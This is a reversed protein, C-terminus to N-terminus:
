RPTPSAPPQQPPQPQRPGFLRNLGQGIEGQLLGEGRQLEKNLMEQGRELQKTAAGQVAATAMQKGLNQLV